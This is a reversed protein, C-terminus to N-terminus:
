VPGWKAAPAWCWCTERCRPFAAAVDDDSPELLMGEIESTKM